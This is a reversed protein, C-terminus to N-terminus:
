PRRSGYESDGVKKECGGWMMGVVGVWMATMRVCGRVACVYYRIRSYVGTIM